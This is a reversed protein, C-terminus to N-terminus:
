VHTKGGNTIMLSAANGGLGCGNILVSEVTREVTHDPDPLAQHSLMLAAVAADLAGEAGFSHGLRAKSLVTATGPLVENLAQREAADVEMQGCGDPLVVDPRRSEILPQMAQIRSQIDTSYADAATPHSRMAFGDVRGYVRAGRARAHDADELILFAAGEGLAFAQAVASFPVGDAGSVPAESMKRLAALLFPTNLSETGGAVVCDLRGQEIARAAHGLSLLSSTRDSMLTKSHGKFGHRITIQGQPAAPFWATAQFPSVARAGKCHLNRLERDTFQWGGFANGVFVGVREPVMREPELGADALARESAILAYSTFVDLKRALRRPLQGEIEGAEMFRGTLGDAVAPLPQAPGTLYQWLAQPSQIGPLSLGIGTIVAQRSM